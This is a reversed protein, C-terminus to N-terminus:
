GKGGVEGEMGEWWGRPGCSRESTSESEVKAESALASTPLRRRHALSVCCGTGECRGGGDLRAADLGVVGIDVLTAWLRGGSREMGDESREPLGAHPGRAACGSTRTGERRGLAVSGSM